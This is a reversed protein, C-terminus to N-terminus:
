GNTIQDYKALDEGHKSVYARMASNILDNVSCRKVYAIKELDTHLSPYLLLNLRKSKAEKAGQTRRPAPKQAAPIPETNDTDHTDHTYQEPDPSSIFSMAPNPLDKFSKKAM